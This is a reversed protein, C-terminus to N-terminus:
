LHSGTSDKFVRLSTLTVNIIFGAHVELHWNWNAAVTGNSIIGALPLQFSYVSSIVGCLRSQQEIWIVPSESGSPVFASTKSVDCLNQRFTRRYLVHRVDTMAGPSPNTCNEHVGTCVRFLLVDSIHKEIYTLWKKGISLMKIIPSSMNYPSGSAIIVFM